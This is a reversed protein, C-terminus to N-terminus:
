VRQLEALLARAWESVLGVPRAELYTELDRIAKETEGIQQWVLARYYYGDAYGRQTARGLLELAADPQDTRLYIRAEGALLSGPLVGYYLLYFKRQENLYVLAQQVDDVAMVNALDAMAEFAESGGAVGAEEGLAVAQELDSIAQETDGELTHAM